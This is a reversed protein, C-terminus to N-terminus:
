SYFVREVAARARRTTRLYEEVFGGPDEGPPYGVARAVGILERGRRPLADAARGRVLTVANRVRSALRWAAALADADARGVLGADAAATLAELTRPTRLGPEEHAYRLQLLQVTWEVDALGGRGLKFHTTPDAGRPLRESDVRAKIRRIETVDKASIGGAPYRYRDVMEIFKAGTEDHGAIPRARLLAQAEWVSAWRGYYAAYSALSRVLPGQRGEPRLGADVGLAPDPAPVALLRRMEEAVEHAIPTAAGEEAGDIAEFVFLVDADSGYGVEAGGLRGMAIVSMRMPLPGGYRVTAAAVATDLAACLTADTVATLAEAV